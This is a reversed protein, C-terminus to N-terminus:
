HILSPLLLFSVSVNSLWSDGQFQPGDQTHVVPLMGWGGDPQRQVELSRRILTRREESMEHGVIHCVIVYQCVLMSNWVVEGAFAGNDQQRTKLYGLSRRYAELLDETADAANPSPTPERAATATSM